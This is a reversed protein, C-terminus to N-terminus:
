PTTGTFIRSQHRDVDQRVSAAHGDVQFLEELEEERLGGGLCVELDDLEHGLDVSGQGRANQRVLVAVDNVSRRQEAYQVAALRWELFAADTDASGTAHLARFRADLHALQERTM